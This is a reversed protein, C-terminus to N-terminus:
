DHKEQDSFKLSKIMLLCPNHDGWLTPFEELPRFGVAEYFARTKAYNEDPHTPSLTKVQFYETNQACLFKEAAAVLARGVGKRHASPHIGMVYIESSYPNHHKLTLFGVVQSNHAALLTPLTEIAQIYAATAEPIGFWEPLAYLIPACVAGQGLHPGTVDLQSM